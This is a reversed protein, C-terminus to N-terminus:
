PGRQIRYFGCPNENTHSVVNTEGNGLVPDGLSEWGNTPSSAGQLVCAVGADATFLIDWVNGPQRRIEMIAPPNPPVLALSADIGPVNTELGVVVDDGSNLDPKDNFAEGLYVGSGDSFEVRYTGAALGDIVYEGNFDTYGGSEFNWQAGDWSYATVYIGELPMIGDPGTVTGIITSAMELSANIGAVTTSDPVIVDEGSSLSPANRYAETAYEGSPDRFSVRYTGAGLGRIAYEGNADTTDMGLTLWGCVGTWVAASVTINPLLTVGDAGTVVGSIRSTVDNTIHLSFSGANYVAVQYTAGSVVSLFVADEDYYWPTAVLALANLSDGSWVAFEAEWDDDSQVDMQIDGTIPSTWRFWVSENLGAYPTLESDELTADTTSGSSAAPFGTVVVPASFADNAPPGAWATTALM